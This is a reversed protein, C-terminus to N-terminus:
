IGHTAVDDLVSNATAREASRVQVWLLRNSALQVVREVTVGGPCGTYLVTRTANDDITDDVPEQARSCEPHQPVQDPLETGPLIGLFVGQSASEVDTWDKSTGVSLAPFEGGGNPAKWGRPAQAMEWGSPVTVSLTGTRDSVTAERDGRQEYTYGAVGAAALVVLAVVSALVLRAARRPPKSPALEHSPPLPSPRAGPQTLQPDVPLWPAAISDATSGGLATSLAAVYATVDPWRDERDPALGRRVM